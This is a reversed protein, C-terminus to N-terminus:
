FIVRGTSFAAQGGIGVNSHQLGRGRMSPRGYRKKKGNGIIRGSSFSPTGGFGSGNQQLGRGRMRKRKRGYGAAGAIKGVTSAVPLVTGLANGVTSIIRTKKLWDNAKRLFDMFGRGRLKRRKQKGYGYSQALGGLPIAYAPLHNRLGHISRSILKTRKLFDNGRKLLDMVGKGQLKRTKKTRTKRPM